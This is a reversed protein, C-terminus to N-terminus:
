LKRRNPPGPVALDHPRQAVERHVGGALDRRESRELQDAVARRDRHERDLQCLGVAVRHEVDGLSQADAAPLHGGVGHGLRRGVHGHEAHDDPLAEAVVEDVGQAGRGVV